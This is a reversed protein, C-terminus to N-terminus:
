VKGFEYLKEVQPNDIKVECYECIRTVPGKKRNPDNLDGDNFSQTLSDGMNISDDANELGEQNQLFGKDTLEQISRKSCCYFCCSRGCIRCHHQTLSLRSFASFCIQCYNKKQWNTKSILTKATEKFAISKRKAAGPTNIVKQMISQRLFNLGKKPANAGSPTATDQNSTSMTEGEDGDKEEEITSPLWQSQMLGANTDHELM